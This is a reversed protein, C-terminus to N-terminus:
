EDEKQRESKDDTGTQKSGTVKKQKRKNSRAAQSRNWVEQPSIHTAALVAQYVSVRPMGPPFLLYLAVQKEPEPHFSEHFIKRGHLGLADFIM